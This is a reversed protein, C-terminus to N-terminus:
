LRDKRKDEDFDMVYQGMVSEVLEEVDVKYYGAIAKLDNLLENTLAVHLYEGM